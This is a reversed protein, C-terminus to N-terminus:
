GYLQKVTLEIANSIAESSVFRMDSLKEQVVDLVEDVIEEDPEGVFNDNYDTLYEIILGRLEDM